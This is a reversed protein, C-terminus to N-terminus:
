ENKKQMEEINKVVKLNLDKWRNLDNHYFKMTEEVDEKSFQYTRQLSDIRHRTMLTDYKLLKGEQTIVLASAYYSAFRDEPIRPSPTQDNRSCAAFAITCLILLLPIRM